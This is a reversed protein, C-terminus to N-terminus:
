IYGWQRLQDETYGRALLSNITSSNDPTVATPMYNSFDAGQVAALQALYGGMQSDFNVTNNLLSADNQTIQSSAQNNIDAMLKNLQEDYGRVENNYESNLGMLSSEALGGGGTAYAMQPLNTMARTFREYAQRKAADVDGQLSGKAEDAMRLIDANALDTAKQANARQEAQLQQMYAVADFAPQAPASYGSSYGGSAGSQTPTPTANQNSVTYKTGNSTVTAGERVPGLGADLAQEQTVTQTPLNQWPFQMNSFNSQTTTTTRPQLTTQSYDPTTTAVKPLTVKTASYLPSTAM